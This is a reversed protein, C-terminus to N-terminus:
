PAGRTVAAFPSGPFRSSQVVPPSARGLGPRLRGTTTLVSGEWPHRRAGGGRPEDVDGSRRPILHVHCHMITQGAVVGCNMGVNFGEVTKDAALINKRVQDLLLNIARREPDHLDFYTAAHRRPGGGV